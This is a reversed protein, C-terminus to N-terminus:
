PCCWSQRGQGEEEETKKPPLMQYAKRSRVTEAKGSEELRCGQLLGSGRSGLRFTDWATPESSQLEPNRRGDEGLWGVQAARGQQTRCVASFRGRQRMSGPDLEGGAPFAPRLCLFVWWLFRGGRGGVKLTSLLVGSSSPKVWRGSHPKRQGGRPHPAQPLLYKGPRHCRCGWREPLLPM